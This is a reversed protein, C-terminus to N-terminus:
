ARRGHGAGIEELLRKHEKKIGVGWYEMDLGSVRM